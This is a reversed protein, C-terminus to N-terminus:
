IEKETISYITTFSGYDWGDDLYTTIVDCYGLVNFKIEELHIQTTISIRDDKDDNPDESGTLCVKEIYSYAEEITRFVNMFVHRAYVHEEYEADNSYSQTVVYVKM